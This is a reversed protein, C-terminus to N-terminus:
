KGFRRMVRAEGKLPLGEAWSPVVAMDQELERKVRDAEAADCEVVLEDHVHLVCSGRWKNLVDQLLDRAIAQVVNEVVKGGYTRVVGYRPHRYEVGEEGVTIEPYHLARGSPLVLRMTGGAKASAKVTAGVHQWLGGGRVSSGDARHRVVRGAIMSHSDRYDEIIKATTLGFREPELGLQGLISGLKKTGLGYGCGLVVAKGLERAAPDTAKTVPHGVLKAAMLSYVDQGEAFARVLWKEKALWALVRAEIAAFDAAVLRRGPPAVFCRRIAGRVIAGWTYGLAAFRAIAEAPKDADDETWPALQRAALSCNPDRILAWDRSALNQTQVGVASYRGTHGGYYRHLGRLRGDGMTRGLLRRLKATHAEALDLRARLVPHETALLASRVTDRRLNELDVGNERLWALLFDRRRLDSYSLGFPEVLAATARRAEPEHELLASALNTDVAIGRDNIWKHTLLDNRFRMWVDQLNLKEWLRKLLAVDQRCYDVVLPLNNRTLPAKGKCIALAEKAHPHKGEGLVYEGLADLGAPLGLHPTLCCSDIWLSPRFEYRELLLADFEWANHAVVTQGQLRDRITQLPLTPYVIEEDEDSRAVLVLLKTREDQTYIRGGVEKLDLPSVTETDLFWIM